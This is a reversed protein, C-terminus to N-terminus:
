LIRAWMLRKRSSGEELALLCPKVAPGWSRFAVQLGANLSKQAGAATRSSALTATKMGIFGALGSYFGGTLFALPVFTAQIGIYAAFALVGAMIVFFVAVVKYQQRLYAGAGQRVYEAIEIMRENGPEAAKMGKFFTVAQILAAISGLLTLVWLGFETMFTSGGDGASEASQAYAVSTGTAVFCGLVIAFVAGVLLRGRKWSRRGLTHLNM